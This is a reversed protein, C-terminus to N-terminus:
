SLHHLVKHNNHTRGLADRSISLDLNWPWMGKRINGGFLAPRSSSEPTGGYTFVQSLQGSHQEAIQPVNSSTQLDEGMVQLSHEDDLHMMNFRGSENSWFSTDDKLYLSNAEVQLFTRQKSSANRFM